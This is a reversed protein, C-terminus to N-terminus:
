CRWSGGLGPRSAGPRVAAAPVPPCGSEPAQLRHRLFEELAMPGCRRQWGIGPGYRRWCELWVGGGSGLVLRYCYEVVTQLEVAAGPHLASDEGPPEQRITPGQAGLLRDGCPLLHWPAPARCLAQGPLEQPALAVALATALWNAVADPQGQGFLLVRWRLQTGGPTTFGEFSILAWPGPGPTPDGANAAASPTASRKTAAAGAQPHAPPPGLCPGAAAVAQESPERSPFPGSM